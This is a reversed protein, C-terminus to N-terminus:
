RKQHKKKYFAASFGGAKRGLQDPINRTFANM